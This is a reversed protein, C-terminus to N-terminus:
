VFRLRPCQDVTQVHANALRPPLCVYMCVYMCVYVLISNMSALIKSSIKINFAESAMSYWIYLIALAGYEQRIIRRCDLRKVHPGVVVSSCHCVHVQQHTNYLITKYQITNTVHEELNRTDSFQNATTHSFFSIVDKFIFHGFWTYYLITYYLITNANSVRKKLDPSM